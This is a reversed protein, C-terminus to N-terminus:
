RGLSNDKRHEIIPTADEKIRQLIYLTRNHKELPHQNDTTKKPWKPINLAGIHKTRSTLKRVIPPEMKPLTDGKRSNDKSTYVAEACDQDM